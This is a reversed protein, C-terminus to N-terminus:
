NYQWRNVFSEFLLTQEKDKLYFYQAIISLIFVSIECCNNAVIQCNNSWKEFSPNKISANVIFLMLKQYTNKNNLNVFIKQIIAKYSEVCDSSMPYKLLCVLFPKILYKELMVSDVVIPILVNELLINSIFKLLEHNMSDDKNFWLELDLFLLQIIRLLIPEQLYSKNSSISMILLLINLDLLSRKASLLSVLIDITSIPIYTSLHLYNKALFNFFRDLSYFLDRSDRSQELITSHVILILINEDNINRAFDYVNPFKLFTALYTNKVVAINCVSPRMHFIINSSYISSNYHILATLLQDIHDSSNNINHACRGDPGIFFISKILNDSFIQRGIILLDITSLSKPESSIVLIQWNPYYAITLFNIDTEVNSQAHESNGNRVLSLLFIPFDEQKDYNIDDIQLWISHSFQQKSVRTFISKDFGYKVSQFFTSKVTQPIHIYCNQNSFVNFELYSSNNVFKETSDIKNTNYAEVDSIFKLFNSLCDDKSISSPNTESSQETDYVACSNEAMHNNKFIDVDNVNSPSILVNKLAKWQDSNATLSDLYSLNIADNSDTDRQVLSNEEIITKSSKDLMGILDKIDEQFLTNLEENVSENLTVFSDTIKLHADIDLTVSNTPPVLYQFVDSHHSNKEKMDWWLISKYKYGDRALFQEIIRICNMFTQNLLSIITLRSKINQDAFQYLKECLFELCYINKDILLQSIFELNPLLFKSNDISDNWVEMLPSEKNFVVEQSGCKRVVGALIKSLSKLLGEADSKYSQCYIDSLIAICNSSKIQFNFHFSDIYDEFVNIMIKIYNIEKGQLIEKIPNMESLKLASHNAFIFSVLTCVLSQTSSSKYVSNTILDNFVNNSSLIKFNKENLHLYNTFTEVVFNDFEELQNEIYFHILLNVSKLNRVITEVKENSIISYGQGYADGHFSHSVLVYIIQRRIEIIQNLDFNLQNNLLLDSFVEYGKAAEFDPFIFSM